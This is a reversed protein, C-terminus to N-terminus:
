VAAGCSVKEKITTEKQMFSGRSKVLTCWISNFNEFNGPSAGGGGYEGLPLPRDGGMGVGGDAVGVASPM